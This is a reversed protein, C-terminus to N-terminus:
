FHEFGAGKAITFGTRLDDTQCYRQVDLNQKRAPNYVAQEVLAPEFDARLHNPKPPISKARHANVFDLFATVAFCRM